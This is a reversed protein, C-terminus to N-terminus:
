DELTGPVLWVSEHHALQMKPWGSLRRLDPWGGWTFYFIYMVRDEGDSQESIGAPVPMHQPTLISRQM